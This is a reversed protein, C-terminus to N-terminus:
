PHDFTLALVVAALGLAAWAIAPVLFGRARRATFFSLAVAVVPIAPTGYMILGFVFEGPGFKDCARETCSATSLVQLYSLIVVGVAGPITLLAFTWNLAARGTRTPSKTSDAPLRDGPVREVDPAPMTDAERTQSTVM